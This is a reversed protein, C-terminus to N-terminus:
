TAWPSFMAAAWAARRPPWSSSAPLPQDGLIRGVQTPDAISPPAGPIDRGAIGRGVHRPDAVASVDASQKSGPGWVRRPDKVPPTESRNLIIGADRPDRIVRGSAKNKVQTGGAPGAAWQPDILLPRQDSAGTSGLFWARNDGRLWLVAWLIDEQDDMNFDVRKPYRVVAFDANSQDLVSGQWVHIRYDPGVTEGAGITWSFTGATAAATGLTKALVGGKHSRPDGFRVPGGADLHRQSHLGHGLEGRREPLDGHDDPFRRHLLRCREYRPHDRQFGSNARSM